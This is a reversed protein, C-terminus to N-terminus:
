VSWSRSQLRLWLMRWPGPSQTEKPMLQHCHMLHHVTLHQVCKYDVGSDVAAVFVGKGKLGRKHAYDVGMMVHPDAFVGTRRTLM